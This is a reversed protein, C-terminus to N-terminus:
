LACNLTDQIYKCSCQSPCLLSLLQIWQWLSVPLFHFSESSHVKRTHVRKGFAKLNKPHLVDRPVTKGRYYAYNTMQVFSLCTWVRIIMCHSQDVYAISISLRAWLPIISVWRPCARCVPKPNSASSTVNMEPLYFGPICTLAASGDCIGSSPYSECKGNFFLEVSACLQLCSFVM